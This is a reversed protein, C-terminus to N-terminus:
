KTWPKGCGISLLGFLRPFLLSLLTSMQKEMLPQSSTCGRPRFHWRASSCPKSIQIMTISRGREARLRNLEGRVWAGVVSLFSRSCREGLSAEEFVTSWQMRAALLISSRGSPKNNRINEISGLESTPGPGTMCTKWFHNVKTSSPATLM